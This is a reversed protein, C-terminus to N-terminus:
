CQTFCSNAWIRIKENLSLIMSETTIRTLSFRNGSINSENYCIQKLWSKNEEGLYVINKKQKCLIYWPFCKKTSFEELEFSEKRCKVQNVYTIEFPKLFIGEPFISGGGRIIGVWLIHVNDERFSFNQFRWFLEFNGSSFFYCYNTYILPEWRSFEMM